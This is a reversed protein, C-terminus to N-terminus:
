SGLTSSLQTGQPGTVGDNGAIGQSGQAGTPGTAGAPGQAGQPGTVGDNGPAGQSGTAGAAGAPGQTGQPGTDGTPGTAGGGSGTPGTPGTVGQAGTAGGNGATGTTGPLGTPGQPGIPGTPGQPGQASNAAYLAYPVSILQSTGMDTYTGTNNIDLEVQLFKAGNGWSVTALNGLAGIQVNVMGFQNATANIVEQYVATGGATGDHITVRLRVPTNNAVPQGSANRVVAQYNMLQPSQSFSFLSCLLLAAVLPLFKKM